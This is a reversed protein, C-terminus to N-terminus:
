LLMDIVHWYCTWETSLHRTTKTHGYHDTKSGWFHCCICSAFSMKLGYDCIPSLYYYSEDFSYFGYFNLSHIGLKLNLKM